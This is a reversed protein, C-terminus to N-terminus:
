PTGVIALMAKGSFTRNLMLRAKGRFQGYGKNKFNLELTPHVASKIKPKAQAPRLYDAQM